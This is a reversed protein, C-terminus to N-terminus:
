NPMSDAIVEQSYVVEVGAQRLDALAKDVNGIARTADVIVRVKFGSEKADKATWAVCYDLALGVIDVETVKRSQLFDALGTQRKRGNDWFGSYSDVLRDTGKRVIHDVKSCELSPHPEAGPTDAVCHDPWCVQPLGDLTGTEGSKAGAHQSAFSGHDAPHWDRTDVILDYPGRRTLENIVPVIEHGGAVPLEGTGPIDPDAPLFGRQVDVRLLARVPRGEKDEVYRWMEALEWRFGGSLIPARRGCRPDINHTDTHLGATAQERKWQNRSWLRFWRDVWTALQRLDYRDFRAALMMLCQLPSRNKLLAENEIAELVPFPGLQDEDTQKMESPQLEASAPLKTVLALESIPTLGAPGKTELWALVRCIFEKGMGSVPALGGEGDGGATWYGTCGETRNSTTLLVQHYVNGLFWAIVARVRAQVNQLAIDDDKWNLKRGIVKQFAKLVLTVISAIHFFLYRAGLAHSLKEAAKRTEKGSNASAQYACTLLRNTLARNDNLEAVGKVHAFKHKFADMGLEAVGLDVMYKVQCAALASDRGGSLSVLAGQMRAKTIWDSIALAPARVAEEEDVYLGSEWDDQCVLEHSAQPELLPYSFAVTVCDDDEAHSLPEFSATAARSSRRLDLDVVCSVLVYDKHSFRKGTTCLEGGNAIMPGGDFILRGNCGHQNAYLVVADCSRSGEQVIRKRMEFRGRGFHSASPHIIVKVGKKKLTAGTPDEEFAEQCVEFGIKVGGVKFYIDGIPLQRGGITIADVKGRPWPKFQRQECYNGDGALDRKGVLGVVEGDVVLASVNYLRDDEHLVPLGLSYVMGWGRTTEAIRSAVRWATEQMHIRQFDDECEYGSVCLEQLGLITIGQRHAERLVDLIIRENREWDMPVTNMSATGVKILRM